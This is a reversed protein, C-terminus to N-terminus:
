RDSNRTLSAMVKAWAKYKSTRMINRSEVNELIFGEHNDVIISGILSRNNDYLIVGLVEQRLCDCPPRLINHTFIYRLGKAPFFGKGPFVRASLFASNGVVTYDKRAEASFGNTSYLHSAPSGERDQALDILSYSEVNQLIDVLSNGAFPIIRACGAGAIM